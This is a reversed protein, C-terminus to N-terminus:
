IRAADLVVVHWECAAGKPDAAIRQRLLEDFRTKVAESRPSDEDLAAWLSDSFAARFFGSVSTVYRDLDGDSRYSALYPDPLSRATHRRLELEASMEGSEFPQLFEATTRDVLAPGAGPRAALARRMPELSNGGGAAGMDAIVFPLPAAPPSIEAAAQELWEFGLEGYAEQAQSHATYFGHGEMRGSGSDIPDVM